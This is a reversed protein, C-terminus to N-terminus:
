NGGIEESFTYYLMSTFPINYTIIENEETLYEIQIGIESKNINKIKKYLFYLISGNILHFEIHKDEM